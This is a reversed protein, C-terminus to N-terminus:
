QQCIESFLLFVSEFIQKMISNDASVTLKRIVNISHTKALGALLKIAWKSSCECETLRQPNARTFICDVISMQDGHNCLKYLQKKSRLKFFRVEAFKTSFNERIAFIKTSNASLTESNPHLDSQRRSFKVTNPEASNSLSQLRSPSLNRPSEFM